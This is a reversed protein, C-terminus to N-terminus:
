FVPAHHILCTSKMPVCYVYTYIYIHTFLYLYMYIYIHTSLYMYIYIYLRFTIYVITYEVLRPTNLWAHGDWTLCGRPCLEFVHFWANWSFDVVVFWVVMPVRKAPVKESYASKMLNQACMTTFKWLKSCSFVIACCPYCLTCMGSGLHHVRHCLANSMHTQVPLHLWVRPYVTDYM